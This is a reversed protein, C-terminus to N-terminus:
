DGDNGCLTQDCSSKMDVCAASTDVVFCLWWVRVCAGGSGCQCACCEVM